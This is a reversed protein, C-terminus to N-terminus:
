EQSLDEGSGSLQRDKPVFCDWDAAMSLLAGAKAADRRVDATCARPCAEGKACRRWITCFTMDQYTM